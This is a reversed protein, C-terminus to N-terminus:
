VQLAAASSFPLATAAIAVANTAALLSILLKLCAAAIASSFPLETAAIAVANPSAL